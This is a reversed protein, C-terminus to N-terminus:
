YAPGWREEDSLTGGGGGGGSGGEGGNSANGGGSGGGHAAPGMLREQRLTVDGLLFISAMPPDAPGVVWGGERESFLVPLPKAAPPLGGRMSRCHDWVLRWIGVGVFGVGAAAVLMTMPIAWSATRDKDKRIACLVMALVIFLVGGSIAAAAARQSATLVARRRINSYYSITRQRDRFSQRLNYSRSRSGSNALRRRRGPLCDSPCNCCGPCCGAGVSFWDSFYTACNKGTRNEWLARLYVGEVLAAAIWLPSLAVPWSMRFAFVQYWKLEGGALTVEESDLKACLLLACILTLVIIPRRGMALLSRSGGGRLAAGGATGGDGDLMLISHAALLILAGLAPSAVASAPLYEASVGMFRLFLLLMLILMFFVFASMTLWLRVWAQLLFSIRVARAAVASMGPDRDAWLNLQHQLQQDDPSRIASPKETVISGAGGSESTGVPLVTVDNTALEEAAAAAQANTEADVDTEMAAGQKMGKVEGGAAAVRTADDKSEQDGVVSDKWGLAGGTAAASPSPGPTTASASATTFAPTLAGTVAGPLNVMYEPDTASRVSSGPSPTSTRTSAEPIKPMISAEQRRRSIRRIARRRKREEGIMTHRVHKVSVILERVLWFLAAVVPLM